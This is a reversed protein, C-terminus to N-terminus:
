LGMDIRAARASTGCIDRLIENEARKKMNSLAKKRLDSYRAADVRECIKEHAISDYVSREGSLRNKLLTYRAM